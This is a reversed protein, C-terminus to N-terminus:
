CVTDREIDIVPFIKLICQIPFWAHGVRECAPGIPGDDDHKSCRDVFGAFNGAHQIRGVVRVHDAPDSIIYLETVPTVSEYKVFLSVYYGM